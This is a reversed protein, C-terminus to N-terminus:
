LVVTGATWNSTPNDTTASFAAHSSQYVLMGSVMVSVPVVGWKAVARIGSHQLM